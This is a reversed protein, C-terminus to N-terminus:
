ACGLGTPHYTLRWRLRLFPQVAHAINPKVSRRLRRSSIPARIRPLLTIGGLLEQHEWVWHIIEPVEERRYIITTSPNQDCFGLKLQYWYDLQQVASLEGRTIAGAPAAVPVQIVWQARPDQPSPLMPAGIDHLYQWLPSLRAIRVNRLYYRSHRPHLGPSCQVLESANGSPKVTTIAASRAIGLQAAITRNVIRVRERLRAQVLPDRAVPSDMQGNLDVGQLREHEANEHWASRLGPFHTALTQITGITTALELKATLTEETDWPRAVASSLTAAQYPRLVAEGCSNTGFLTAEREDPRTAVAARRSFIGPEGVGREVVWQLYRRVEELGLPQEWVMSTNCIWRGAHDPNMWYPGSKAALMDQDDPDFLALLAARRRGGRQACVAIHCLVDHVDIPRLRQGQRRLILRRVTTLLERLPRSGPAYGGKTRLWTGAPRIHRLDFALDGGSFWAALGAMVAAVWGETSDEVLYPRPPANQQHPIPPLQDVYRTEVSYGVGCGYMSILMVEGFAALDALPLYAVNAISIANRDACPGANALLRMSPLVDLMAIAQRIRAIIAAEIASGALHQLYTTCRDVTEDWTEWRGANSLYHAYKDRHQFQQMLTFSSVVSTRTPTAFSTIVPNDVQDHLIV